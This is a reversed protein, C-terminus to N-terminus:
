SKRDGKCEYRLVLCTRDHWPGGYVIIESPRGYLHHLLFPGPGFTGSEEGALAPDTGLYIGAHNPHATRGVQMVIMDGRQPRDVRVFGAAEYHQEYLSANESNEWWGDTRQFAEFELGWERQYGHSAFSHDHVVFVRYRVFQGSHLRANGRVFLGNGGLELLDALMVFRHALAHSGTIISFM